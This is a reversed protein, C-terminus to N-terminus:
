LFLQNFTSVCRVGLKGAKEPTYLLLVFYNDYEEFKPRQNTNVIDELTLPHITFVEGIKEIIDVKHVGNVNIWKMMSPNM